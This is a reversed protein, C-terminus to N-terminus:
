QELCARLASLLQQNEQRSRVAVRIFRNDLGPYNGCDRVLIGRSVMDERVLASDTEEKLVQIFIYNVSPPYPKLWPIERLGHYLFEKERNVLRRTDTIYASDTLAAKGAVQALINVNWPDKALEMKKIIGAPGVGWGLRLGPIAFFKTLSRLIFLNGFSKRSYLLSYKDERPLFDMFAEDVVVFTGKEGAAQIVMELEEREWLTGTPNNPNCLFLLDVKSLRDLTEQRPLSFDRSHPLQLFSVRAGASEAAFQYEIFTPAPILVDRPGLVKALIFILESAGNGMILSWPGLPYHRALAEKLERCQPDPYNVIDLLSSKIEELVGAPPGLPNINASFDILQGEALGLKKQVKKLDGGHIRRTM